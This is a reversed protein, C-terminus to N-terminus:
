RDEGTAQDDTGEQRAAIRRRVEERIGEWDDPTMETMPGSNLGELLLAELRARERRKRDERILERVYESASSYDGRGVLEEIYAKLPDPLSINMTEM